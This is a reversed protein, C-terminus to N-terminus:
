CKGSLHCNLLLHENISKEDYFVTINCPDVHLKLKNEEVNVFAIVNEKPQMSGCWGAFCKLLIEVPESYPIEFGHKGLMLGKFDANIISTEPEKYKDWHPTSFSFVGKLIISTNSNYAIIDKYSNVIDPRSCSLANLQSVVFFNIIFIFIIKRM